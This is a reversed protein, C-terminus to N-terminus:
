PWHFLRRSNDPSFDNTKDRTTTSTKVKTTNVETSAVLEGPGSNYSADRASQVEEQSPLYWDTHGGFSLDDCLIAATYPSDANSLSALTATNGDGDATDTVGNFITQSASWKARLLSGTCESGDWTQGFYCPTTYMKTGGDASLGAYVTGDSCLTGIAPSPDSCAGQTTVNWRDARAGVTIDAYHKVGGSTASNLRMRIYENNQISGEATTWSQIVSSDCNASSSGDSCIQYEPNGLGSISIQVTCGTINTVQQINSTIQTSTAAGVVDTFSFADPLSNPCSSAQMCGWNLGDCLEMCSNATSYRLTGEKASVCSDGDTGIKVGGAVDLQAEPAGTGIGIKGSQAIFLRLFGDTGFKASTQASLSLSGNSSIRGSASLPGLPTGGSGLSLRTGNGDLNLFAEGDGATATAVIDISSLSNM